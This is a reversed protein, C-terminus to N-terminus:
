GDDVEFTQACARAFEFCDASAGDGSESILPRLAVVYRHDRGYDDTVGAGDSFGEGRSRM